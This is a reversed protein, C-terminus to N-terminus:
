ILKPQQLSMSRDRCKDLEKPYIPLTTYVFRSSIVTIHLNIM